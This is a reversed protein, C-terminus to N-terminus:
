RDRPAAPDSRAPAVYSRLMMEAEHVKARRRADDVDSMLKDPTDDFFGFRVGWTSLDRGIRDAEDIRGTALAVRAERLRTQATRRNRPGAAATTPTSGDLPQELLKRTRAKALTEAVKKPSDELFGWKLNLDRAQIVTREADDFKGRFIQERAEHLLWRGKEKPDATDRWAGSGRPQGKADNTAPDSTLAADGSAPSDLPSPHTPLASASPATITTTSFSFSAPAVQADLTAALPVGPNSAVASETANVAQQARRGIEDALHEQYIELVIQEDSTLRDRYMAAAALYKEALDFQGKNFLSTGTQLYKLPAAPPEPRTPASQAVVPAASPATTTAPSTTTADTPSPTPSPQDDAAPAFAALAITIALPVLRTMGVEEM